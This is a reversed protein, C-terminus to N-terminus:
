PSSSGSRRRTTPSRSASSCSRRSGCRRPWRARRTATRRAAARADTVPPLSEACPASAKMRKFSEAVSKQLMGETVEKTYFFIWDLLAITTPSIEAPVVNTKNMLSPIATAWVHTFPLFNAIGEKQSQRGQRFGFVSCTVNNLAGTRQKRMSPGSGPPMVQLVTSLTKTMEADESRSDPVNTGLACFQLDTFKRKIQTKRKNTNDPDCTNVMFQEQGDSNRPFVGRILMSVSDGRIETAIISRLGLTQDPLSEIQAAPPPDCARARWPVAM